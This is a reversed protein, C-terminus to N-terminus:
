LVLGGKELGAILRDQDDASLQWFHQGAFAATCHRDLSALAARYRSAPTVPSQDGQEKTGDHFPPRMYQSASTGYPGALQRDIFVACGAEKGGATDDPPILRDVLAEVAAAEEPTFFRWGAPSVVTPPAGAYPRWPGGSGGRITDAKASLGAAIWAASGALLGRRHM